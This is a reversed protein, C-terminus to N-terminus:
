SRVTQSNLDRMLSQVTDACLGSPLREEGETGVRCEHTSERERERLIFLSLFILLGSRVITTEDEMSSDATQGRGARKPTRRLNACFHPKGFRGQPLVPTTSSFIWSCPFQCPWTCLVYKVSLELQWVKPDITVKMRTLVMKTM